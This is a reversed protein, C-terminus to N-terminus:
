ENAIEMEENWFFTNFCREAQEYNGEFYWECGVFVNWTDRSENYIMTVDEFMM